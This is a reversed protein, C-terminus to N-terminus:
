EENAVAAEARHIAVMAQELDVRVGLGLELRYGRGTGGVDSGLARGGKSGLTRLTAEAHGPAATPWLATMLEAAHLDRTRNLVLYVFLVRGLRGPLFRELRAGGIEIVLRGCLQVKGDLTTSLMEDVYGCCAPGVVTRGSSPSCAIAFSILQSHPNTARPSVSSSTM